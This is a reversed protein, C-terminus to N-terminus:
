HSTHNDEDQTIPEKVPLEPFGHLRGRIIYCMCMAAGASLGVLDWNLTDPPTAYAFGIIHKSSAAACSILAFVCEPFYNKLMGRVFFLAYLSIGIAAGAFLSNINLIGANRLQALSVITGMGSIVLMVVVTDRRFKESSKRKEEAKTEKM